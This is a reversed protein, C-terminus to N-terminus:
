WKGGSHVWLECGKGPVEAGIFYSMHNIMAWTLTEDERLPCSGGMPLFPCTKDSREPKAGGLALPGPVWYVSLLEECNVRRPNPSPSPPIFQSLLMSVNVNYHTFYIALPFKSYLVPLEFWTNQSLRSPHSPTPSPLSTGSPPVYTYM